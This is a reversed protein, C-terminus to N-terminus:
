PSFEFPCLKDIFFFADTQGVKDGLGKVHVYEVREQM